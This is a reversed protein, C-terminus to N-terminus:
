SISGFSVNEVKECLQPFIVWWHWQNHLFRNVKKRDAEEEDSEKRGGGRM